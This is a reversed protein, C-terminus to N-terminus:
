PAFPKQAIDIVRHRPLRIGKGEHFRTVYEDLLARDKESDYDEFIPVGQLFVDFDERSAYYETFHYEAQRIVTFECAQLHRTDRELQPLDRTTYGQGRDFVEKLEIADRNGITIFLFMGGPKLVRFYEAFYSPGRRNYVVDFTSDPFAAHAADQILLSANTISGERQRRQAVALMERSTDIGIMQGFLAAMRLTFRGDGAGVDLACKEVGALARLEREFVQEPDATPYETIKRIPSAHSGFRRAVKDYFAGAM